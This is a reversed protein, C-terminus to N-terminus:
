DKIEIETKSDVMFMFVPQLEMICKKVSDKKTGDLVFKLLSKISKGQKKLLVKDKNKITLKKLSGSDDIILTM